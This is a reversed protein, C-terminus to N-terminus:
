EGGSNSDETSETEEEEITVTFSATAEGSEVTVMCVYVGSDEPRPDTFVLTNGMAQVGDPLEVLAGDEERFWELTGSPTTDNEATCELTFLTGEEM